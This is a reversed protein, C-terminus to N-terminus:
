NVMWVIGQDLVSARCLGFPMKPGTAVGDNPGGVSVVGSQFILQNQSDYKLIRYFIESLNVANLFGKCKKILITLLRNTLERQLFLM